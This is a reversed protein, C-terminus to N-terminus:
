HVLAHIFFNFQTSFQSGTGELVEQFDSETPKREDGVRLTNVLYYIDEKSELEPMGSILMMSFLNIFLNYNQRLIQHGKVCYSLFKNYNEGGKGGMVHAMDPTFVFPVRERQISFKTKFNGLIHGFDIHFLRGDEQIMINDNHRDGVGLVFTAVCYGACSATFREFVELKQQSTVGSNKVELWSKLVNDKFAGMLGSMEKQIKCITNSSTVVEIMGTDAGTAIVNYPNLM